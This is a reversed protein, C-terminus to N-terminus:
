QKTNCTKQVARIMCITLLLSFFLLIIVESDKEEAHLYRGDELLFEVRHHTYQIEDDSNYGTSLDIFIDYETEVVIRALVKLDELFASINEYMQIYCYINAFSKMDIFFLSFKVKTFEQVDHWLSSYFQIQTSLPSPGSPYGHKDNHVAYDKPDSTDHFDCFDNANVLVPDDPLSPTQGDHLEAMFEYGKNVCEEFKEEGEQDEFDKSMDLDEGSDSPESDPVIDEYDVLQSHRKEQSQSMHSTTLAGQMKGPNNLVPVYPPTKLPLM